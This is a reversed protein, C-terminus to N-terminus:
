RWTCVATGDLFSCGTAVPYSVPHAV